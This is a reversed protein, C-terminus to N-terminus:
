IAAGYFQPLPAITQVISRIARSMQKLASSLAVTRHLKLYLKRTRNRATTYNDECAHSHPYETHFVTSDRLYEKRADALDLGDSAIADSDIAAELSVSTPFIAKCDQHRDCGSLLTGPKHDLRRGFYEVFTVPAHFHQQRRM